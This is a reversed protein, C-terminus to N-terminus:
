KNSDNKFLKRWKNKFLIKYKSFRDNEKLYKKVNLDLIIDFEKLMNEYTIKKSKSKLKKLKKLKKWIIWVYESTHDYWDEENRSKYFHRLEILSQDLPSILSFYCNWLFSLIIEKEKKSLFDKYDDMLWNLSRRLFNHKIAFNEFEIKDKETFEKKM